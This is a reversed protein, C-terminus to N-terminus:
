DHTKERGGTVPSIRLRRVAIEALLDALDRVAPPLAEEASRNSPIAASTNKACAKELSHM